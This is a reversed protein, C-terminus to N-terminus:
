ALLALALLALALALALARLLVIIVDVEYHIEDVPCDAVLAGSVACTPLFTSDARRNRATNKLRSFRSISNNTQLLLYLM